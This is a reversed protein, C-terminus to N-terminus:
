GFFELLFYEDTVGIEKAKESVWEAFKRASEDDEKQESSDFVTYEM